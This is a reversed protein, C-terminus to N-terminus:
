YGALKEIDAKSISLKPAKRKRAKKVAEVALRLDPDEALKNLNVGAKKLRVDTIQRSLEMAADNSLFTDKKM